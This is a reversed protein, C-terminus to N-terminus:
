RAGATVREAPVRAPGAKELAAGEVDLV